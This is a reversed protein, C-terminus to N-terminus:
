RCAGPEPALLKNRKPRALRDDHMATPCSRSTSRTTRLHGRRRLQRHDTNIGGATLAGRNSGARQPSASTAARASGAACARQRQRPDDNNARDGVDADTEAAAVYTGIGGNWLLDVPASSRSMLEFPSLPAAGRRYWLAARRRTVAISRRRARSDGGGQQDPAPTTTPGARARCAFLAASRVVRRTRIPISSSPPPRLRGRPPHARSLLMGNGFVDGVHRRRRRPSPSGSPDCASRASIASSRNWAGATIGMGKHDYGVSGGSAFARRALLRVGPQGNAIDSFTATGKDAAVVLYPDDGDLRRRGRALPRHRWRRHQRHHGAPRVVADTAASAEWGPTATRDGPPQKGVFGGKAGVPVIVSNKVM